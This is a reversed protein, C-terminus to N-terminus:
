DILKFTVFKLIQNDGQPSLKCLIDNSLNSDLVIKALTVYKNREMQNYEITCPKSIWREYNILYDTISMFKVNTNSVVNLTYSM